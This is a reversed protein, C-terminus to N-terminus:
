NRVIVKFATPDTDAVHFAEAVKEVPFDHTILFRADV